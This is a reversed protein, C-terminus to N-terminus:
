RFRSTHANPRGSSFMKSGYALRPMITAHCAYSNARGHILRQDIPRPPQPRIQIVCGKQIFSVVRQQGPMSCSLNVGPVGNVVVTWDVLRVFPAVQCRKAIRCSRQSPDAMGLSRRARIAGHAVVIRPSALSTCSSGPSSGIGRRDATFRSETSLTETPVSVSRRPLNPSSRM